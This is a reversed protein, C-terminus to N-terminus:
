MVTKRRKQLLFSISLYISLFSRLLPSSLIRREEEEEEKKETTKIIVNIVYTNIIM